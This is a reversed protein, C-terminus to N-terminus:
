VTRIMGTRYVRLRTIVVRIALIRATNTVMALTANMATTMALTDAPPPADLFIAVTRNPAQAKFPNGELVAALEAGTRVLVGVPKGAYEELCRELKAKVSAESLRSQFVVNGSAIYTRVNTLGISECMARLDAMPLKGQRELRTALDEGTLFEMVIYAAGSPLNNFDLVDVIHKNGLASAIEAERKFRELYTPDAMLDRLLVKMACRRKSRVQVAEYVSGMGGVGIVRVVKYPGIDQGVLPDAPTQGWRPQAHDPM